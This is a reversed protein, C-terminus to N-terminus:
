LSVCIQAIFVDTFLFLLNSVVLSATTNVTDKYSAACVPVKHVCLTNLHLRTSPALLMDMSIYGSLSNIDTTDLNKKGWNFPHHREIEFRVM